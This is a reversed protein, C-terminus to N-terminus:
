APEVVLKSGMVEKVRYSGAARAVGPAAVVAWQAGRYKVVASGDTNWANVQVTAGIDQNVDSNAQAKLAGPQKVKYFHWALTAGGGVVAAVITQASTGLGLYSALAGAALGLSIMLLYFTGTMLEAIVVLGTLTWWITSQEMWIRRKDTICWM